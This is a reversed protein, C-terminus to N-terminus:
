EYGNTSSLEPLETQFHNKNLDVNPSSMGPTHNEDMTAKNALFYNYIITTQDDWTVDVGYWKGDIETYNWAHGGGEKKDVGVVMISHIGLLHSLYLYAKAYCECVGGTDPNQDALGMINHAWDEKSPSGMSDKQYDIKEIIYDHILKSKELDSMHPNVMFLQYVEQEMHRIGEISKDRAEKTYYDDALILMIKTKFANSSIFMHSDLFYFQPNNSIFSSAIAYAENNTIAGKNYEYSAIYVYNQSETSVVYDKGNELVYDVSSDYFAMCSDYFAEYMNLYISRHEEYLSNTALTHYDYNKTYDVTLTDVYTEHCRTCEHKIRSHGYSTNEITEQYDHGLAPVVEAGTTTEGCVKCVMGSAVGPSTCTPEETTNYDWEHSAEVVEQEKLVKGCRKCHSGETLGGKTCTKPVAADIEILHGLAETRKGRYEESCDCRFLTYGEEECTPEIVTEKYSHVHFLDMTTTTPVVFGLSCSSLGIVSTLLLFAGLIRKKM